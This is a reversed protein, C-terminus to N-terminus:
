YINIFFLICQQPSVVRSLCHCVHGRFETFKLWASLAPLLAVQGLGQESVTEQLLPCKIWSKLSPYINALCLLILTLYPINWAFPLALTFSM